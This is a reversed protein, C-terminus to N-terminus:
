TSPEDKCLHLTPYTYCHCIRRCVIQLPGFWFSRQGFVGLPFRHNVSTSLWKSQRYRRAPEGSRITDTELHITVNTHTHTHTTFWGHYDWSLGMIIGHYDWLFVDIKVPKGWSGWRQREVSSAPLSPPRHWTASRCIPWLLCPVWPKSRALLRQSIRSTSRPSPSRLHLGPLHHDYSRTIIIHVM